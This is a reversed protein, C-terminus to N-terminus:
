RLANNLESNDFQNDGQHALRDGNRDRHLFHGFPNDFAFDAEDGLIRERIMQHLDDDIEDVRGLLRHIRENMAGGFIHHNLRYRENNMDRRPLVIPQLETIEFLPRQQM